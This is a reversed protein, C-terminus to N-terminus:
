VLHTRLDMCIECARRYVAFIDDDSWGDEQGWEVLADTDPGDVLLDDVVRIAEARIENPKM